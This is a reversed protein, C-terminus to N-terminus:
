PIIKRLRILTIKNQETAANTLEQQYSNSIRVKLIALMELTNKDTACVIFIFGFKTFYEKNLSALERLTQHDANKTTKQEDVSWKTHRLSGQKQARSAGIKPHFSFAELWDNPALSFWVEKAKNCLEEISCFPSSELVKSAWVPCFCCDLLKQKSISIKGQVTM